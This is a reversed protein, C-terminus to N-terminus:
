ILHNKNSQADALAQREEETLELDPIREEDLVSFKNLAAVKKRFTRKSITANITDDPKIDALGEKGAKNGDQTVLVVSKQIQSKEGTISNIPKGNNKPTNEKFCMQWVAFLVLIFAPITLISNLANFINLM